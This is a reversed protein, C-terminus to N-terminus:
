ILAVFQQSIESILGEVIIMLKQKQLKILLNVPNVPEFSPNKNKKIKTENTFYFVEKSVLNQMSIININVMRYDIMSLLFFREKKSFKALDKNM